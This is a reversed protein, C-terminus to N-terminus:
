APVGAHHLSHHRPPDALIAKAAHNTYLNLSPTCLLKGGREVEQQLDSRISKRERDQERGREMGAWRSATSAVRGGM